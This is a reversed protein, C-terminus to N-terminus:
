QDRDPPNGFDVRVAAGVIKALICLTIMAGYGSDNDDSVKLKKIPPGPPLQDFEVQATKATDKVTVSTIRGTEVTMVRGRLADRNPSWESLTNTDQTM